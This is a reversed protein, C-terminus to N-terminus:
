AQVGTYVETEGHDVELEMNVSLWTDESGAAPWLETKNNGIFTLLAVASAGNLIFLMKTAETAIKVGQDWHWIQQSNTAM